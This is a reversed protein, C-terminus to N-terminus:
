MASANIFATLLNIQSVLRLRITDVEEQPWRFRDRFRKNRNGLSEFESLRTELEKLVDYAGKGVLELKTGQLQQTSDDGFQPLDAVEQLVIYLAKVEIQLASFGAPASKCRKYIKWAETGLLVFDSVSYGFSM